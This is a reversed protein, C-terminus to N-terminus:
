KMSVIEYSAGIQADEHDTGETSVVSVEPGICSYEGIPGVSGSGEAPLIPIDDNFFLLIFVIDAPFQWPSFYSSILIISGWFLSAYIRNPDTTKDYLCKRSICTNFM